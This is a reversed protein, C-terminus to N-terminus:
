QWRYIMGLLVVLFATGGLLIIADGVTFGKVPGM